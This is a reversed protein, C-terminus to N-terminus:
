NPVEHWKIQFDYVAAGDAPDPIYVTIQGAAASATVPGRAKIPYVTDIVLKGNGIVKFPIVVPSSEGTEGQGLGGHPWSPSWHFTLNPNSVDSITTLDTVAHSYADAHLWKAQDSFGDPSATIFLTSGGDVRAQVEFLGNKLAKPSSPPTPTSSCGQSLVCVVMAVIGNNIKTVIQKM